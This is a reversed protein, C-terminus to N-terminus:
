WGREVVGSHRARRMYASKTTMVVAAEGPAASVIYIGWSHLVVCCKITSAGVPGREKCTGRGPICKEAACAGSAASRIINM